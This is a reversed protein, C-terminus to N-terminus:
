PTKTNYWQIFQVAIRWTKDIPEHFIRIDSEANNWYQHFKGDKSIKEIKELVPMLWDWSSHFLPESWNHTLHTSYGDPVLYWNIEPDHYAKLGMFEAILKNGAIIDETMGSPKNEM